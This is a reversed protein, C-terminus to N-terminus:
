TIKTEMSQTQGPSKKNLLELDASWNHTIILNTVATANPNSNGSKFNKMSKKTKRTVMQAQITAAKTPKSNAFDQDLNGAYGNDKNSYSKLGTHCRNCRNRIAAFCHAHEDAM